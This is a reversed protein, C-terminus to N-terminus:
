AEFSLGTCTKREAVYLHVRSKHTRNQQSSSFPTQCPCAIPLWTYTAHAPPSLLTLPVPSPSTCRESSGESAVESVSCDLGQVLRARPQTQHAHPIQKEVARESGISSAWVQCGTLAIAPQFRAYPGAMFHLGPLPRATQHSWCTSNITM